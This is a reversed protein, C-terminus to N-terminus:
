RSQARCFITISNPDALLYSPPCSHLPHISPSINQNEAILSLLLVIPKGLLGESIERDGQENIIQEELSSITEFNDDLKKNLYYYVDQHDLHQTEKDKTLEAIRLLLRKKQEEVEALVDHMMGVSLDVGAKIAENTIHYEQGNEDYLIAAPANETSTKNATLAEAM